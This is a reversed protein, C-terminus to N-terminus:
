ALIVREFNVHLLSQAYEFRHPILHVVFNQILRNFLRTLTFNFHQNHLFADRM